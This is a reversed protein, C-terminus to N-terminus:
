EKDVGDNDAPLEEEKKEVKPASKKRSRPKPTEEVEVVGVPAEAEENVPVVDGEDEAADAAVEVIPAAVPEPNSIAKDLVEVGGKELWKAFQARAEVPDDTKKSMKFSAIAKDANEILVYEGIGDAVDLGVLFIEVETSDTKVLLNLLYKDYREGMKFESIM